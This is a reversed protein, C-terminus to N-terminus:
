TGAVPDHRPERSDLAEFLSADTVDVLNEFTRLVTEAQRADASFTASFVQRDHAPRAMEAEVVEVGRRHLVSAMSLLNSRAGGAWMAVTVVYFRPDAM